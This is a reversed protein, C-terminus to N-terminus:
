SKKLTNVQQAPLAILVPQVALNNFKDVYFSAPSLQYFGVSYPTAQGHENKQLNIKVEKPYQLGDQHFYGKQSDISFPKGSKKSVGSFNDVVTDVIEIKMM